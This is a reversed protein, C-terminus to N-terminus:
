WKDSYSLRNWFKFIDDFSGDIVARDDVAFGCDPCSLRVIPGSNQYRIKKRDCGCKPCGRKIKNDSNEMSIGMGGGKALPM